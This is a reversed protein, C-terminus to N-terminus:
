NGATLYILSGNICSYRKNGATFPVSPGNDQVEGQVMVSPPRSALQNGLEEMDQRMQRIVARLDENQTQLNHVKEEQTLDQNQDGTPETMQSSDKSPLHAPITLGHRQLTAFAQDKSLTLARILDDRQALERDREKALAVAQYSCCFM